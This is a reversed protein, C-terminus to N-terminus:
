NPANGSNRRESAIKLADRLSFVGEYLAKGIVVGYVGVSKLLTLDSLNGIGGSAIVKAERYACARKVINVSVGGLTGDRNVSTLLFMEIKLKLLEQIANEVDFEVTKRWGEIMVKGNKEYDLAVIIHKGFRKALKELVEPRKFALTGVIIKDVGMNLLKEATEESRIGGGVHVPIKVTRAIEFITAANDGRGFVADLDVVHLGDAGESEWKQAVTVPNELGIYTRATEPQGKFLRVVRGGMIDIAPFVKM